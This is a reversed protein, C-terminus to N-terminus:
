LAVPKDCRKTTAKTYQSNAYKIQLTLQEGLTVTVAEDRRM